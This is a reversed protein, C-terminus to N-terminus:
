LGRRRLEQLQWHTNPKYREKFSQNKVKSKKNRNDKAAQETLYGLTNTQHSDLMPSYKFEEEDEEQKIDPFKRAVAARVERKEKATGHQAVMSLALRAHEEDNIPYAGAQKGEPGEGEGPLAFDSDDMRRREAADLDKEFLLKKKQMNNNLGERSIVEEEDEIETSQAESEGEAYANGSDGPEYMSRYPSSEDEEFDEEPKNGRLPKVVASLYLAIKQYGPEKAIQRVFDSLQDVTQIREAYDVVEQLAEEEIDLGPEGLSTQINTLVKNIAAQVLVGDLADDISDDIDEGQKIDNAIEKAHLRAKRADINGQIRQPGRGLIENALAPFRDEIVQGIEDARKTIEDKHGDLIEQLAIKYRSGAEPGAASLQDLEEDTIIKPELQTYLVHVVFKRSDRPVATSGVDRLKGTLGKGFGSYYGGLGKGGETFVKCRELLNDFSSYDDNYDFSGM